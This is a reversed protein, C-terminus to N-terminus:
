LRCVLNERSQLESTHEESRVARPCAWRRPPGAGTQRSPTLPRRPRAVLSVISRTRCVHHFPRTVSVKGLQSSSSADAGRGLSSLDSSRRTRFSLLVRCLSCF